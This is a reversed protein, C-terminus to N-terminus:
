RWIDINKFHRPLSTVENLDNFKWPMLVYLIDNMLIAFLRCKYIDTM